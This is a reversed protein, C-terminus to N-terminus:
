AVWDGIVGVVVAAAFGLLLPPTTTWGVADTAFAAAIAVWSGLCWPCTVLEYFWARIRGANPDLYRRVPWTISDQGVLRWVRYAAAGVLLTEVMAIM